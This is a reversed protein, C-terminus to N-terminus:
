PVSAFNLWTERLQEMTSLLAVGEEKANGVGAGAGQSRTRLFPLASQSSSLFPCTHGPSSPLFCCGPLPAGADGMQHVQTTSFVKDQHSPLDALRWVSKQRTISHLSLPCISFVSTLSSLLTAETVFQHTRTARRETQQGGTSHASNLSALRARTTQECGARERLQRRRTPEQRNLTQWRFVM